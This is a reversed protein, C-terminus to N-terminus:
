QHAEYKPDIIIGEQNVEILTFIKNNLAGDTDYRVVQTVPQNVSTPMQM